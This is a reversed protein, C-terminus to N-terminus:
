KLRQAATITVDTLPLNPFTANGSVLEVKGIEDMVEIGSIISGFVAYGPNAESQYDFGPNDAINLYFQNTGSDPSEGRAMGITGRLNKLGNNSELKIGTFVGPKLTLNSLFGGGQALSGPVVRHFITNTYHGAAVLNLFNTVTIPAANADLELLIIGSREGQAVTMRVQPKPVDLRLSALETGSGDRIRPVIPGTAGVKCSFQVQADTGGTITTVPGCAGEVVMNLGSDTFGSGNVTVTMTAQYFLSSASVNTVGAKGGGGGGGCGALALTLLGAGLARGLTQFSIM